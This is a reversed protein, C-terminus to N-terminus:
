SVRRGPKLRESQLHCLAIAVADFADDSLKAPLEVVARVMKMMQAKGAKGYGTLSTKVQSPTYEWVTVGRQELTLLIVGRAEGVRMATTTNSGFFLQEVAAAVPKHKEVLASLQGHLDALRQADSRGTSTSLVNAEVVEPQAGNRRLLAV